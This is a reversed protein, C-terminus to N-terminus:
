VDDGNLTRALVETQEVVDLASESDVADRGLLGGELQALDLLVLEAGLTDGVDDGVVAAGDPVGVRGDLDVVRDFEVKHLVLNDVDQLELGAVDDHDSATTVHTARTDDGVPLPVQTTEVNDVDLVNEVAREGGPIDKKKSAGHHCHLSESAYHCTYSVSLNLLMKTM